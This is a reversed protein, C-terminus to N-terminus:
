PVVVPAVSASMWRALATMRADQHPQGMLQVGVPMGGVALLPMTVVPAFLMSSPFNFVPDGTPRPALPEGPKDGGWLPAPGPCSLTIIADALPAVHRHCQQAVDREILLARYDAPSMAEARALVAKARASVGDPDVDVLGRQWWRNEWGTIGSCVAAAGALARELREVLPSSKRRLLAVGQGEIAALLSEFARRSADDTVAWGDTELVILRCPKAPNPPTPPGYLGPAGRDGGARSAIEIAVQWM